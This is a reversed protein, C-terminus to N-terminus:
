IPTIAGIRKEPHIPFDWDVDGWALSSHICRGMTMGCHKEVYELALITSPAEIFFDGKFFFTVQAKYKAM